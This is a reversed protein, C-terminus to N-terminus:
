AGSAMGSFQRAEVFSLGVGTWDHSELALIVLQLSLGMVRFFHEIHESRTRLTLSNCDQLADSAAM